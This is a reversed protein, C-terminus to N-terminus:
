LDHHLWRAHHEPASSLIIGAFREEDVLEKIAAGADSGCDISEVDSKCAQEVLRTADEPTWDHVDSGKEPPVLLAFREGSAARRGVEALLAPTSATRNAVILTRRTTDATM